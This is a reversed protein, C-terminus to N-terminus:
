GGELPLVFAGIINEGRMLPLGPPPRAEAERHTRPAPNVVQRHHIQQLRAFLEENGFAAAVTPSHERSTM